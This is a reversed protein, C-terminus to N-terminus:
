LMKLTGHYVLPKHCSYTFNAALTRLKSVLDTVRVVHGVTAPIYVQLTNARNEIPGALVNTRARGTDAVSFDLFGSLSEQSCNLIM